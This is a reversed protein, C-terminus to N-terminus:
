WSMGLVMWTTSGEDGKNGMTLTLRWDDILGGRGTAQM